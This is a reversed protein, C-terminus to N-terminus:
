THQTLPSNMAQPCMYCQLARSLCYMMSDPVTGTCLDSQAVLTFLWGGPPPPTSPTYILNPISIIFSWNILSKLRLQVKQPCTNEPCILWDTLYTWLQRSSAMRILTLVLFGLILLSQSLALEKKQRGTRPKVSLWNM